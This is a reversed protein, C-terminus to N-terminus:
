IDWKIVEINFKNTSYVRTEIERLEQIFADASEGIAKIKFNYTNEKDALELVKGFLEDLSYSGCNVLSNNDMDVFTIEHRYTFLNLFIIFYKNDM